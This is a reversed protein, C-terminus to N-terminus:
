HITKPRHSQKLEREQHMPQEQIMWTISFKSWPVQKDQITKDNTM